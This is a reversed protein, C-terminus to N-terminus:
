MLNVQSWNRGSTCAAEISEDLQDLAQGEFVLESTSGLESSTGIRAALTAALLLAVLHGGAPHTPRWTGAPRPPAQDEAQLKAPKM